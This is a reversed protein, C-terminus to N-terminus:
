QQVETKTRSREKIRQPMKIRVYDRLQMATVNFIRKKLTNVPRASPIRFGCQPLARRQADGVLM